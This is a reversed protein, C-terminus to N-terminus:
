LAAFPRLLAREDGPRAADARMAGYQTTRQRAREATLDHRIDGTLMLSGSPWGRPLHPREHVSGTYAIERRNLRYQVDPYHDSLRGDVHNARSFGLSVLGQADAQRTIWGLSTLLARDPMEDDDIQLMWPARSARQLATRQAGFNGALDRKVARVGEPLPPAPGDIVLIIETFFARIPLVRAAAARAQESRVIMGLAVAGRRTESVHLHGAAPHNSHGGAMCAREEDAPEYRLGARSAAIRATFADVFIGTKKLEKSPFAGPRLHNALDAVQVPLTKVLGCNACQIGYGIRSVTWERARCLPCRATEQHPEFAQM